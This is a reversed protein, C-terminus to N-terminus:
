GGCRGIQISSAYHAHTSNNEEMAGDQGVLMLVLDALLPCDFRQADSSPLISLWCSPISTAHLFQM